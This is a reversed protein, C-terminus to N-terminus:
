TKICLWPCCALATKAAIFDNIITIDPVTDGITLPKLAPQQSRVLLCLAALISVLTIKKM